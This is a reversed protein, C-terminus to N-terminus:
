RVLKQTVLGVNTIRATKLADLVAIVNENPAAPV